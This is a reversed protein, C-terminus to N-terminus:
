LFKKKLFNVVEQAIIEKPLDTLEIEIGSPSYIRVSSNAEGFGKEKGVYNGIIYDLNKEKVKKMASQDLNSTEAAFGIKSINNLNKENIYKSITKLIDPNQILQLSYNSDSDKKKIKEQEFIIPKFDAPAAAMFLITDNQIENIIAQLMDNTSDVSVRKGNFDQYKESVNGYIYVTNPIWHSVQLALNYGMKGSSANSIYRVPDIWERTPGSTVIAKKFKM